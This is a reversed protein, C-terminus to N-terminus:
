PTALAPQESLLVLLTKFLLHLPNPCAYLLTCPCPSPTLFLDPTYSETAPIIASFLDSSMPFPLTFAPDAALTTDM